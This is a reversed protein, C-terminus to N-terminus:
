NPLIPKIQLRRGDKERTENANRHSHECKAYPADAVIRMVVFSSYPLAFGVSYILTEM